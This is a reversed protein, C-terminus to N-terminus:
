AKARRGSGPRSEQWADITDAYWGSSQGLTVDPDPLMGRGRYRRITSYEVGVRDAFGELDLPQAAEITIALYTCLGDIYPYRETTLLQQLETIADLVEQPADPYWPTITEALDYPDCTVTADTTTDTITIRYM